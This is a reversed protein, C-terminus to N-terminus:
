DVIRGLLFRITKEIARRKIRSVDSPNRGGLFEQQPIDPNMVCFTLYKIELHTLKAQSGLQQCFNMTRPLIGQRLSEQEEQTLGTLIVVLEIFQRRELDSTAFRRSNFINQANTGLFLLKGDKKRYYDSIAFNLYTYFLGIVIEDLRILKASPLAGQELMARVEDRPILDSVTYWAIGVVEDLDCDKVGHRRAYQTFRNWNATVVRKILPGVILHGGLKLPIQESDGEQKEM